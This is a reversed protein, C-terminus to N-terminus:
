NVSAENNKFRSNMGLVSFGRKPLEQTSVHMLYDGTRHIALFAVNFIPGSSPVWYLGQGGGPFQSFQKMVATPTQAQSQAALLLIAVGFFLQVKRVFKM